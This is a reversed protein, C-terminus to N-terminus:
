KVLVMKMVESYGNVELAYFYIGSSLNEANFVVSYANNEQMESVLVAIEKGLIDYVVLRVM